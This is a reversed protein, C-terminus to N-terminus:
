KRSVSVWLLLVHKSQRTHSFPFESLKYIEHISALGISKQADPMRFQRYSKSLSPFDECELPAEM